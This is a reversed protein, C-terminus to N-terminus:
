RQRAFADAARGSKPAIAGFAQVQVLEPGGEGRATRQLATYQKGIVKGGLRAILPEAAAFM